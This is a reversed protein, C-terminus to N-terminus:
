SLANAKIQNYQNLPFATEQALHTYRKKLSYHTITLPFFRESLCFLLVRNSSLGSKLCIYKSVCDDALDFARSVELHTESSFHFTFM